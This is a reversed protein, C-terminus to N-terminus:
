DKIKSILKVSIAEVQPPLPDFNVPDLYIPANGGNPDIAWALVAKVAQAELKSSQKGVVAYEYNVIPYGYTAKGYIMSITGSKPTKTAFQAAEDAITTVSPLVFNGAKNEVEAYGLGKSLASQLYSIGIYAVCGPTSSCTSVMGSNGDASASGPVDPWSELENPPYKAGWSSDTAALFSTFLFTDGSSDLRHIPAIALSPVTVGPNLSTIQPSDWNTITGGYIGALVSGTLKLHTGSPTIGPVNYDIQQASIALPINELGPYKLLDAPSLYADSAGIDSTGAAAGSVGAGSGGGAPQVTVMPWKSSIAGAWTTFLPELLTSGAETVSVASKPFKELSKLTTKASAPVALALVAFAALVSLVGVKGLPRSKHPRSAESPHRPRRTSM